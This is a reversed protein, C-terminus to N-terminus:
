SYHQPKLYNKDVIRDLREGLAVVVGVAVAAVAALAVAVVFEAGVVRDLELLVWALPHALLVAEVSLWQLM